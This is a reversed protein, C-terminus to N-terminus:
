AAVGKTLAYWDQWIIAPHLELRIAYRDATAWDIEKKKLLRSYHRLSVGIAKAKVANNPMKSDDLYDLLPQIPVNISMGM